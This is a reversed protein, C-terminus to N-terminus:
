GAATFPNQPLHVFATTPYRPSGSRSWRRDVEGGGSADPATPASSARHATSNTRLTIASNWLAAPRSTGPQTHARVAHEAM